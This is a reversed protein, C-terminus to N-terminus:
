KEIVKTMVLGRKFSGLDNQKKWFAAEIENWSVGQEQALSLMVELLDAYENPDAPNDQIESVEEHLKSQLLQIKGDRTNCPRVRYNEGLEVVDPTRDRVLKVRVPGRNENWKTM